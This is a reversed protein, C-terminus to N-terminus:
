VQTFLCWSCQDEFSCAKNIRCGKYTDNERISKIGVVNEKSAYSNKEDVLM